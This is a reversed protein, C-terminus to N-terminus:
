ARRAVVLWLPDAGRPSRDLPEVDRYGRALAFYREVVDCRGAGDLAHFARIAKTPFCRHSMAVIHVGGPRLVRAVSRFVEVPRTLYQVSVANVVADFSDDPYPLEPDRNLDQVVRDQLRPNGDLEEQNMGLGAVREFGVDQPLHSVWSSMLDLVSGGAPLLERYAETLAGVTEPDIHTVFRPVRYFGSDDTTDVREFFGEPFTADSAM